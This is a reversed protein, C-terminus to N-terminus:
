FGSIARGLPPRSRVTGDKLRQELRRGKELEELYDKTRGQRDFIDALVYHGLPASEATPDLRLGTRALEIAEPFNQGLDAYAKALFLYAKAFGPDAAIAAKLHEIERDFAGAKRLVLALNFHAPYAAPHIEIEKEYEEVAKAPDGRAEAILGLNYHADPIRPRKELSALLEREAQGLM